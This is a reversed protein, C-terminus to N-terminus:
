LVQLILDLWADSSNDYSDRIGHPFFTSEQGDLALTLTDGRNDILSDSGLIWDDRDEITYDSWGTSSVGSLKM